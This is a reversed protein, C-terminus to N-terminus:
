GRSRSGDSHRARYAAVNTRNGCVEYSHWRRTRSRTTDYFAERCVDNACLRLRSWTGAEVLAAVARSIHAVVPDGAVQRLEVQGPASFDQQFMVDSVRRSFAAWGRAAGASDQASVLELLDARVARVLDLRRPAPAVDEGFPRVVRAASEPDDLKDAMGAYARSNLLDVLAAAPAPVVPERDPHTTRTAMAEGYASM